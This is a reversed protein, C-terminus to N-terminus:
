AEGMANIRMAELAQLSESTHFHSWHFPKSVDIPIRLQRNQEIWKLIVASTPRPNPVFEGEDTIVDGAGPLVLKVWEKVYGNKRYPVEIFGIRNGM